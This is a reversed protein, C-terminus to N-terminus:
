DPVGAGSMLERPPLHDADLVAIMLVGGVFFFCDFLVYFFAAWPM